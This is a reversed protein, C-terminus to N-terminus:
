LMYKISPSKARDFKKPNNRKRRPWIACYTPSSDAMNRGTSFSRPHVMRRVTPRLPPPVAKALIGFPSFPISGAASVTPLCWNLAPRSYQRTIFFCVLFIRLVPWSPIIPFCLRRNLDKWWSSVDYNLIEVPMLDEIPTDHFRAKNEVGAYSMYGGIMLFSGGGHVYEKIASLRNPREGSRLLVEPHFLLSNSGLDSIAVCDYVSLEKATLPFKAMVDHCPLYDVEIGNEKLKPLLYNSAESYRYHTFADMGKIHTTAITASEGAFLVKAM